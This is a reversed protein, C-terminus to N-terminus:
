KPKKYIDGRSDINIVYIVIEYELSFIARYSGIRLRFYNNSSHHIKKIDLNYDSKSESLMNFANVFKKGIKKNKSIFKLAEKKYVVKFNNM